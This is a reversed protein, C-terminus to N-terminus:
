TPDRIHRECRHRRSSATALVADATVLTSHDARTLIELIHRRDSNGRIRRFCVHARASIGSMVAAITATVIGLVFPLAVGAFGVSRLSSSPNGDATAAVADLM